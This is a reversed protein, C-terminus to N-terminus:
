TGETSLIEHVAHIGPMEIFGPLTRVAFIWDRVAPYPDLEVGGDAALAAYPFCAIDAVTPAAGTLFRQGNLGQETLAAELERLAARAGRQARTMDVPKRLMAGLRAEGSTATLRGSFALWQQVRALHLPDATPFWQGTPDHRAALLTLIATSETLIQGQTVFVPLTGAPNLGLFDPSLHEGGPYFDIAQRDIKVNLLAAMLRIKYCNGSLAYDYLLGTM